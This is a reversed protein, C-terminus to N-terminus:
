WDLKADQLGELSIDAWVQEEDAQPVADYGKALAKDVEENRRRALWEHVAARIVEARSGFERGKFADIERLADIDIQFAIQKVKEMLGDYVAVM